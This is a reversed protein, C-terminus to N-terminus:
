PGSLAARSLVASNQRRLTKFFNGKKFKHRYHIL